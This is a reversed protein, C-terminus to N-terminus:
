LKRNTINLEYRKERNLLAALYCFASNTVIMGKCQSMLQMDVYNKGSTNGEVYTIQRLSDLGLEKAHEKCWDIDDSFIFGHWKGPIENVFRRVCTQYIEPGLALNLTVYDGRRIHVALSLSNKILKLYQRNKEDEIKPFRLEQRFIDEYKAFWDKIIWYGHYYINECIDLDMIEPCYKAMEIKYVEGDFPNFNKYTDGM